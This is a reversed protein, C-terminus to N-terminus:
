PHARWKQQILVERIAKLHSIEENEIIDPCVSLECRRDLWEILHDISYTTVPKDNQMKKMGGLKRQM